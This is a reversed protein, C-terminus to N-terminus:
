INKHGFLHMAVGGLVAFLFKDAGCLLLTIAFIGALIILDVKRRFLEHIWESITAKDHLVICLDFVLTVGLLIYAAIGAGMWILLLAAILLGAGIRTLTKM